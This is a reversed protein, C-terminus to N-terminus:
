YNFLLRSTQSHSLHSHSTHTHACPSKHQIKNQEKCLEIKEKGNKLIYKKNEEREAFSRMYHVKKRPKEGKESM